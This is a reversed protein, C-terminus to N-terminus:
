EVNLGLEDLSVPEKHSETLLTNMAELLQHATSRRVPRGLEANRLTGLSVSKTRRIVDERSLYLSDRIGRFRSEVMPQQM